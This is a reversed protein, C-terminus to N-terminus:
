RILCYLYPEGFYYWFFELITFEYKQINFITPIATNEFSTPNTGCSFFVLIITSFSRM